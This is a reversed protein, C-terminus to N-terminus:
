VYPGGLSWVAVTLDDGGRRSYGGQSYHSQRREAGNGGQPNPPDPRVALEEDAGM